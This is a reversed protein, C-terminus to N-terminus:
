GSKGVTMRNRVDKVGEVDKVVKTVLEKEAENKAEGKVTVVGHNTDVDTRLGSTSRHSLLSMKVMATISADDIAQRVSRGTEDTRRETRREKSEGARMGADSSRRTKREADSLDGTGVAESREKKKGESVTIENRVEKVGEVDKAIETALDKAERSEAEGRLTVVGKEVDVDTDLGSVNRNFLLATKVKMLTWADSNAEPEPEKVELQVDVRKVGKVASATEEALSKKSADSVTGTLTVVGDESKVNVDEDELYKEYAHSNRISSEIKGDDVKAGNASAGVLLLMFAAAALPATARMTKM